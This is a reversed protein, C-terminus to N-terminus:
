FNNGGSMNMMKQSILLNSPMEDNFGLESGEKSEICPNMIYSKNQIVALNNHFMEKEIITKSTRRM